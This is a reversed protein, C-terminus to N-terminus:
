LAILLVRDLVYALMLATALRTSGAVYLAATAAAFESV